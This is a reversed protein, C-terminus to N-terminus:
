GGAMLRDEHGKGDFWVPLAKFSLTSGKPMHPSYKVGFGARNNTDDDSGFVTEATASFGGGVAKALINKGFYNEDHYFEIFTYGDIGAVKYLINPRVFSREADKHIAAAEGVFKVGNDQAYASTSALAAAAILNKMFVAYFIVFTKKFM